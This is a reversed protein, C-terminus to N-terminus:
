NVLTSLGTLPIVSLRKLLHHKSFQITIHLIFSSRKIVSFVFILEFHILYFRLTLGLVICSRYSFPFLKIINDKAIIEPYSMLPVPLPLLFLSIPSCILSLLRQVDFSVILLAFLCGVYHSFNNAFDHIQYPTLTWSIYLVGVVWCCFSLKILFHAISKSMEFIIYLHGVLHEVDGIM